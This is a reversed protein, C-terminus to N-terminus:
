PRAGSHRPHCPFVPSRSPSPAPSGTGSFSCGQLHLSWPARGMTNQSCPAGAESRRPMRPRLHQSGPPSRVRRGELPQETSEEGPSTATATATDGRWGKRQPLGKGWAHVAESPRGGPGKWCLHVARPRTLSRACRGRVRPPDGAYGDNLFIM